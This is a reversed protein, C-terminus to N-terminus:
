SGLRRLERRLDDTLTLSSKDAGLPVVGRLEELQELVGAEAVDSVAMGSRERALTALATACSAVDLKWLRWARRASRSALTLLHPGALVTLSLIKVFSHASDPALPNINSRGSATMVIEDSATGTTFSHEGLHQRDARANCIFLLLMVAGAAILRTEHSHPFLWNVSLWIVCYSAWYTLLCVLLGAIAALLGAACALLCDRRSRRLLWPEIDRSEGPSSLTPATM